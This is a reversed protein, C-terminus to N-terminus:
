PRAYVLAMMDRQDPASGWQLELQWCGAAPLDVYSPGPGDAVERDAREGTGALTARIQLPGEAGTRSVWLIKNNVDASPPSHLEGGFLIAAIRGQEGVVHTVRPRPESFGARAWSPLVDESVASRCAQARGVVVSASLLVLLAAVVWLLRPLRGVSGVV